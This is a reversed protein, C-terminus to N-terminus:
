AHRRRMLGIGMLGLALLALTGPEPAAVALQGRIEGGPYVANHINTYAQGAMMGAILAAQAGEATGGGFTVLFGGTYTAPDLLDYTHQFTGSVTTPFDVFGIAVGVNAGAAICCHIHAAAPTGGVLNNWQIDVSLSNGDVIV